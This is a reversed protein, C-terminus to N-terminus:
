LTNLHAIVATADASELIENGDVDYYDPADADVEKFLLPTPESSRRNLENIIRLADLASAYGSNDVDYKDDPDTTNNQWPNRGLANIVILADLASNTFDFNVDLLPDYPGGINLHNIVANPDDVSVFSDGNPDYNYVVGSPFGEVSGPDEASVLSPAVVSFAFVLLM